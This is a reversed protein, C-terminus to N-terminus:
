SARHDDCRRGGADHEARHDPRALQGFVAHTAFPEFRVGAPTDSLDARFRGDVFVLRKGISPVRALQAACDVVPTLPESFVAEAVPRLNTYHWAEDRRGPLGITRLTEAAARHPSPDGPLRTRLGDFRALFGEIGSAVPANM